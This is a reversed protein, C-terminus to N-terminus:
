RQRLLARKWGGDPVCPMCRRCSGSSCKFTRLYDAQICAQYWSDQFAIVRCWTKNRKVTTDLIYVTDKRGVTRRIGGSPERRVNGKNKAQVAFSHIRIDYEEAFATNLCAMALMALVMFVALKRMSQLDEKM